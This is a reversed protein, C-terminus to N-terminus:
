KNKYFVRSEKDRIAIVKAPNGVVTVNSDVDKTVVSGMGILAHKGVHVRERISSRIGIFVEEEIECGGAIMSYTSIQVNDHVVSDHAIIAYSSMTVNNGIVTDASIVAGINAILGEGYKATPSIHASPHIISELQYNKASVRKYLMAKDNPEGVAIVIKAVDCSYQNCFIDFSMRDIGKFFGPEVTDDIFVLKDWKGLMEAIEKINRGLGGSGYIGLVM